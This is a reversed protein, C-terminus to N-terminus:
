YSVLANFEADVFNLPSSLLEHPFPGVGDEQHRSPVVVEILENFDAPCDPLHDRGVHGQQRM